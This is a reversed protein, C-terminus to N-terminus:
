GWEGSQEVFDELLHAFAHTSEEEEGAKERQAGVWKKKREKKEGQQAVECVLSIPLSDGSPQM